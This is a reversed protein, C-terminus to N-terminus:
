RYQRRARAAIQLAGCRVDRHGHFAGAFSRADERHGCGRLAIRGLKGIHLQAIKVVRAKRRLPAATHIIEDLKRMQMLGGNQVDHYAQPCSSGVVQRM